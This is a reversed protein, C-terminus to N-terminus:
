RGGKQPLPARLRNSPVIDTRSIRASVRQNFGGPDAYLQLDQYACAEPLPAIEVAAKGSVKAKDGLVLDYYPTRAPLCSLRWTFHGQQERYRWEGEVELRLPRGTPLDILQRAVVVRKPASSSVYLGGSPEIAANALKPEYTRWNFPPPVDTPKFRPNFVGQKKAGANGREVGGEPGRRSLANWDELAMDYEGIRYLKQFYARILVKRVFSDNQANLYLFFSERNQEIDVSTWTPVAYRFYEFGWSPNKSLRTNAIARVDPISMLGRILPMDKASLNGLRHRLDLTDFLAEFNGGTTDVFTLAALTQRDRANRSKALRLLSGDSWLKTQNFDTTALQTIARVELPAKSFARKARARIIDAEAASMDEKLLARNAAILAPAYDSDISLARVPDSTLLRRKTVNQSLGAALLGLGLVVPVARLAIM